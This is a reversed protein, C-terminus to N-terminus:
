QVRSGAGEWSAEVRSWAKRSCGKPFGFVREADGSCSSCAIASFSDDSSCSALAGKVCDCASVHNRDRSVCRFFEIPFSHTAFCVVQAISIYKSSRVLKWFRLGFV